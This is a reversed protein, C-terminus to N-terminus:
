MMFRTVRTEKIMAMPVAPIAAACVAGGSGPADAPEPDPDGVPDPEPLSSCDSGGSCMPPLGVGGVDGVGVGGVIGVVGVVGVVGVEGADGVVLPGSTRSVNRTPDFSRSSSKMNPPM